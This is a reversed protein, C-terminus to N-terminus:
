TRSPFRIAERASHSDPISASSRCPRFSRRRFAGRPSCTQSATSSSRSWPRSSARRAPPGARFSKGGATPTSSHSNGTVIDKAGFVLGLIPDHGIAAVRHTNPTLGLKPSVEDYPVKAWAEAKTTLGVVFQQFANRQLGDTGAMPALKESQERLWGTVPSGRQPRGKFAAGPTAVLFYDLLSGAVVAFGIMGWDWKDWPTARYDQDFRQMVQAARGAPLLQTLPDRNVEIGHREIYADIDRMYADWDGDADPLDLSLCLDPLRQRVEHVEKDSLLLDDDIRVPELEEASPQTPGAEKWFEEMKGELDDLRTGQGAAEQQLEDTHRDLDRVRRGLRGTQDDQVILVRGANLEERDTLTTREPRRNRSM